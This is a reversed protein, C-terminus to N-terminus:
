LHIYKYLTWYYIVHELYATSDFTFYPICYNLCFVFFFSVGIVFREVLFQDQFSNKKKLYRTKVNRSFVAQHTLAASSSFATFKLTM